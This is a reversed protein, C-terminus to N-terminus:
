GRAGAGPPPSSLAEALLLDHFMWKGAGNGDRRVATFGDGRAVTVRRWSQPPEGTLAAMEAPGMGSPVVPVGARPPEGVLTAARRAEQVIHVARGHRVGKYTAAGVTFGGLSGGAIDPVRLYAPMQVLKLGLGSVVDNASSTVAAYAYFFYGCFLLTLGGLIGAGVMAYGTSGVVIMSILVAVMVIPVATYVIRVQRNTARGRREAAPNHVLRLRDRILEASKRDM